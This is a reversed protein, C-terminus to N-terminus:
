YQADTAPTASDFVRLKTLKQERIEEVDAVNLALQHAVVGTDPRYPNAGGPQILNLVRADGFLQRKEPRLGQQTQIGLKGEAIARCAAGAPWTHPSPYTAAHFVLEFGHGKPM